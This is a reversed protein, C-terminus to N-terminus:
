YFHINNIITEYEIRSIDNYKEDVSQKNIKAIIVNCKFLLNHINVTDHSEENESYFLRYINDDDDFNFKFNENLNLGTHLDTNLKNNIDKYDFLNVEILNYKKNIIDIFICKTM